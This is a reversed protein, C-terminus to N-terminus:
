SEVDFGEKELAERIIGEDMGKRALSTAVAYASRKGRQKIAKRALALGAERSPRDRNVARGHRLARAEDVGKSELWKAAFEESAGPQDHVLRECCAQAHANDDLWGDTALETTVAHVVARDMGRKALTREISAASQACKALLGLAAERAVRHATFSEVRAALATTWPTGVDLRLGTLAERPVRAIARSSGTVIVRIWRPDRPDSPLDEVHKSAKARGKRANAVAVSSAGRSM